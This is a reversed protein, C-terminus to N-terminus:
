ALYALALADLRHPGPGAFIVLALMFIYLVEPLYLIDCVFDARDLPVWAAVRKIGDVCTAVLCIAILGLAALPALVGFACGLGASFEVSPVFWQLLKPDLGDNKLTEVLTQHRQKVFLKHFGSIAFFTGVAVRNLTLAYEPLGIGQTLTELIM